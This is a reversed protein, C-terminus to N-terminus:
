SQGARGPASIRLNSRSLTEGSAYACFMATRAKEVSLCVGNVAISEGPVIDPMVFAAQHGAPQGPGSSQPATIEGLGQIIGTFMPEPKTWRACSCIPMARASAALRASGCTCPGRGPKLPAAGRFLPRAEDDGLVLPAYHLHFEDVFGAKCCPWSRLKGGGECFFTRPCGLEQANDRVHRCLRAAARM